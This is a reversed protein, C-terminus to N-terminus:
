RDVETAPIEKVLGCVPCEPDADWDWVTYCRPCEEFVLTQRPGEQPLPVWPEGTQDELWASV